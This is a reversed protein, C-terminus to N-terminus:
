ERPVQMRESDYGVNTVKRATSHQTDFKVGDIQGGRLKSEVGRRASVAAGLEEQRAEITLEMPREMLVQGLVNIEGTHGKPMFMGDFLGGWMQGTVPQWGNAEFTLRGQIEPQGHISDIVWQLDVGEPIMERPIHTPSQQAINKRLRQRPAERVPERVENQRVPARLAKASKKRKPATIPSETM